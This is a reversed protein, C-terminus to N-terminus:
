AAAGDVLFASLQDMDIPKILHHDFGAASLRATERQYGTVAVLKADPVVDRLRHALEYGDMGPLGLDLLAIEPRFGHAIEIATPGDGASRTEHGQGRLLMALSDAADAVDDVILIRHSRAPEERKPNVASEVEADRTLRPLTIRFESGKGEGESCAEVHGDHARVLSKVLALGLGLGRAQRALSRPGQTFIEFIRDKMDESIGVGTDRVCLVVSEEDATVHLAVEGGPSTYKAANSLLNGLVETLRVADGEVWVTRPPPVDVEFQHRNDEMTARVGEVAWECVDRVDVPEREVDLKGAIIRAADLLEDLLRSMHHIQRDMMDVVQRQHEDPVKGSKLLDIGNCVAGVPNRLEHGLMAIWQDKRAADEKLEETRRLAQDRATRHHTVDEFSLVVRAGDEGDEVRQANIVVIRDHSDVEYDKVPKGKSIVPGLVDDLKPINWRRDRAESLSQGILTEGAGFQARFADNMSLIRLETDLVVIPTRAAKIIAESYLRAAESRQTAHKEDTVEAFTLCVGELDGDETRYPLIRRMFYRGETTQVETIDPQLTELVQRCKEATLGDDFREKVHEIARGVDSSVLRMVETAASNFRRIKLDRNLFVTPIGTSLFLNHLDANAERLETNKQELERNITNMEENLAELEEKSAELEENSSQLEENLSLLEENSARHEEGAAELQEITAQLERRADHLEQELERVVPEQSDTVKIKARNVEGIEHFSVLFLGDVGVASPVPAITCQVRRVDGDREIHGETDVREGGDVAQRLASHLRVYFGPRIWTLLDQRAEGTPPVLYRDTPGYLHRIEHDSDIIACATTYQRLVYQEIRRNPHDAAFARSHSPRVRSAAPAEVAHRGARIRPAVQFRQERSVPRARFISHQKSIEDFLSTHRGLREARGLVLLGGPRLAFHLRKVLRDHAQPKLYILLNRCCVVDMNSFPPDSLVNHAAFTVCDRISRDVQLKSDRRKFHRERREADVQEVADVPYIARRAVALADSNVDTAYIQARSAERPVKECALIALSYPEEGTACGPVWARLSPKDRQGLLGELEGALTKWVEPDRFFATVGILVDRYLAALEDPDEALRDAYEGWDEIQKLGMRRRTRRALTGTKYDDFNIDALEGLQHLIRQFGETSIEDERGSRENRARRTKPQSRGEPRTGDEAFADLAPWIESLALVADVVGADIASKPMGPSAASDPDQALCLGGADRIAKLGKTGDHGAGSLVVGVARSGDAEALSTFLYDVLGGRAENEALPDVELTGDALSLKSNPAIVYVHDPKMHETGNAQVVTLNRTGAQLIEAIHSSRKPDLHLVVVFAAGSDPPVTQLVSKCAEIGGASAGLGIFIRPENM